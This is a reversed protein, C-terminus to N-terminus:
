KQKTTQKQKKSKKPSIQVGLSLALPSDQILQIYEQSYEPFTCDEFTGFEDSFDALYHIDDDLVTEIIIEIRQFLQRFGDNWNNIIFLDHPVFHSYLMTQGRDYFWFLYKLIDLKERDNLSHNLLDSSTTKVLKNFTIVDFYNRYHLIYIFTGEFDEFNKKLEDFLRM